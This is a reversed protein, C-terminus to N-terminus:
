RVTTDYWNRWFLRSKQFLHATIPNAWWLM